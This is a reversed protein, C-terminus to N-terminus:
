LRDTPIELAQRVQCEFTHAGGHSPHRVGAAPIGALALAMEACRGVAIVRKPRVIAIFEALLPLYAEIESRAPRRNSRPEGPQYPHLPLCNWTLINAPAGPLRELAQWFLTATSEAYPRNARSTPRGRIGLAGRAQLAESVFPVGSFRAGRWGPAEGVALIRPPTTYRELFIHLNDRRIAAAGPRDLEPHEDRYFNFRPLRGGQSPLTFVAAQLWQWVPELFM